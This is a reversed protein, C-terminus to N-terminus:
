RRRAEADRKAAESYAAENYNNVAIIEYMDLADGMSYITELEYLSAYRRAVIAATIHTV